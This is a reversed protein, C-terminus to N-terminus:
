CLGFFSTKHQFPRWSLGLLRWSPGLLAGLSAWSLELLRWSLGLSRGLLRWSLGLLRWSLGLLRWSPGLFGWSGGLLRGSAGPLWKRTIKSTGSPKEVPWLPELPALVAFNLTKKFPCVTKVFAACSEEFEHGCAILSSYSCFLLDLLSPNNM